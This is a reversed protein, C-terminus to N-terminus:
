KCVFASSYLDKLVVVFHPILVVNKRVIKIIEEVINNDFEFYYILWNKM